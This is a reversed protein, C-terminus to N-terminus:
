DPFSNKDKCDVTLEDRNCTIIIIDKLQLACAENGPKLTRGSRCNPFQPGSIVVFNSASLSVYTRTHSDFQGM